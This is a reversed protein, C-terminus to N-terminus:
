KLRVGDMCFYPPTRMNGGSDKDSSDMYFVVKDVEGLESLDWRAWGNQVINWKEYPEPAGGEMVSIYYESEGTVTAGNYGRATLKVYGIGGYYYEHGALRIFDSGGGFGYPDPMYWIRFKDSAPDPLNPNKIVSLENEEDLMEYLFTEKNYTGSFYSGYQELMYNYNTNAVLIHEVVRPKDVTFYAEDGDVRVVTFNGMQSPRATYVSYISSDVAARVMEASPEVSRPTATCWPYSRYNKSSLAFGSHTGDANKKVNMTIYGSRYASAKFPADPVVYEYAPLTIDIGDDNNFTVDNPFPIKSKKTEDDCSCVM